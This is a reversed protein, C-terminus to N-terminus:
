VNAAGFATTGLRAAAIDLKAAYAGSTYTSWPHFSNGAARYVRFAAAANQVPDFLNWSAFEPHAKLHIQWLGYSGQGPADGAATEPNYATPKGGSEALAVAVATLLADGSFGATSAVSALPDAYL